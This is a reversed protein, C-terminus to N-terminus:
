AGGEPQPVQYNVTLFETQIYGKNTYSWEKGIAYVKVESGDRLWKRRKGNIYVRCAVRGSSCIQCEGESIVPPENILLGKYIWGETEEFSLGIIHVFGNKEKGDSTVKDGFEKRGIVTGGMKPSRRVNIENGPKCLIFYEAEDAFAYNLGMCVPIVISLFIALLIVAKILDRKM